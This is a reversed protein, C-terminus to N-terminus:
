KLQEKLKNLGRARDSDPEPVTVEIHEDLNWAPPLKTIEVSWDRDQEQARHMLPAPAYATFCNQPKPYHWVSYCHAQAPHPLAAIAILAIAGKSKLRRGTAIERSTTEMM